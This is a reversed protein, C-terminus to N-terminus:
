PSSVEHDGPLRAQEKGAKGMSMVALVAVQIVMLDTLGVSRRRGPRPHPSGNIGFIFAVASNQEDAHRDRCQRRIRRARALVSATVAPSVDLHGSHPIAQLVPTSCGTEATYQEGRQRL